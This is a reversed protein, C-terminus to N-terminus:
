TPLFILRYFAEQRHDEELMELRMRHAISQDESIQATSRLSALMTQQAEIICVLVESDHSGLGAHQCGVVKTRCIPCASNQLIWVQICGSHFTHGCPVLTCQSSDVVDNLCIVCHESM